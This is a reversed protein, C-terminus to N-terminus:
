NVTGLVGNELNLQLHGQQFIPQVLPPSGSEKPAANPIELAYRYASKAQYTRGKPSNAEAQMAKVDVLQGAVDFFGIDLDVFVNRMHFVSRSEVPFVFLIATDAASEPCIWQYGAAHEVGEDAVRVALTQTGADSSFSLTHQKMVDWGMTSIRCRAEGAAVPTISSLSLLLAWLSPQGTLAKISSTKM